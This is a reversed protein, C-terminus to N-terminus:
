CIVPMSSPELMGETEPRETSAPTHHAFMKRELFTVKRRPEEGLIRFIRAAADCM